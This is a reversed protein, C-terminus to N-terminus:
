ILAFLKQKKALKLAEKRTSIAGIYDVSKGLLPFIFM